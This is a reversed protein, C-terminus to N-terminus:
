GLTFKGFGTLIKCREFLIVFLDACVRSIGLLLALILSTSNDGRSTKNRRPGGLIGKMEIGRAVPEREM